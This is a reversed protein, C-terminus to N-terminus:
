QVATMTEFMKNGIKERFKVSVKLIARLLENEFAVIVKTIAGIM